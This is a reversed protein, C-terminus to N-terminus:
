DFNGLMTSIGDEGDWCQMWAGNGQGQNLSPFRDSGNGDM